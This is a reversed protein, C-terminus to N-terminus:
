GIAAGGRLRRSQRAALAAMRGACGRAFFSRGADANRRAGGGSLMRTTRRGLRDEARSWTQAAACHEAHGGLGLMLLLLYLLLLDDHGEVIALTHGKLLLLTQSRPKLAACGADTAADAPPTAAADAAGRCAAAASAAAM